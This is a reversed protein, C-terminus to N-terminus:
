SIDLELKRYCHYWVKEEIHFLVIKGGVSMEMLINYDVNDLMRKFENSDQIVILKNEMNV